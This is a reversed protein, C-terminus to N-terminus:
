PKFLKMSCFRQNSNRECYLNVFNNVDKFRCEPTGNEFEKLTITVLVQEAKVKLM